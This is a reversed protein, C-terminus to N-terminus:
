NTKNITKVGFCCLPTEIDNEGTAEPLVIITKKLMLGMCHIKLYNKYKWNGHSTMETQQIHVQYQANSTFGMIVMM